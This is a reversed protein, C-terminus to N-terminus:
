RSRQRDFTELIIAQLGNDPATTNLLPNLGTVESNSSFVFKQFEDIEGNSVVPEEKKACGGLM